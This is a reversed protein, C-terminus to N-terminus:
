FPNFQMFIRVIYSTLRISAQSGSNLYSRLGICGSRRVGFRFFFVRYVRVSLFASAGPVLIYEVDASCVRSALM